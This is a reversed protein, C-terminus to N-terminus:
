KKWILREEDSSHLLQWLISDAKEAIENLSMCSYHPYKSTNVNTINQTNYTSNHTMQSNCYVTHLYKLSNAQTRLVLYIVLYCPSIEKRSSVSSIVFM